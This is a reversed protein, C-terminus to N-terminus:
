YTINSKKLLSKLHSIPIAYAIGSPKELVEEKSGKVFVSNVVGIVRGNAPDYLPSGSNGPYAIADLQFVTYPNRLRRIQRATLQRSSVNPIAIPTIASVIGRHTVPYLGLVMGIPFGTFAFREGERVGSADGLKLAPLPSGSIELIALDHTEDQAVLDAVRVTAQKGRGTFIALQEKREFDLIQPVVHRNTVIYRGNGIVFGTGLFLSKPSRTPQISGVAVISPRIKQLTDPLAEAQTVGVCFSSLLLWIFVGRKKM